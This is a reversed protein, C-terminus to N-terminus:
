VLEVYNAPLMLVTCTPDTALYGHWWDATEQETIVVYNDEVFSLETEDTASYDWLAIAFASGPPLLIDPPPPYSEEEEEEMSVMVPPEYTMPPPADYSM